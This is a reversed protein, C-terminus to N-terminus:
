HTETIGIVFLRQWNQMTAEYRQILISVTQQWLSAISHEFILMTFVFNTDSRYVGIMVTGILPHESVNKNLGLKQLM